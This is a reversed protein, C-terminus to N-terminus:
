SETETMGTSRSPTLGFKKKDAGGRHNFVVDGYIQINNNHAENIAALYQAKTGYKTRVTKKRTLSELTMCITFGMALTPVVAQVRTHRPFGFHPLVMRLSRLLM